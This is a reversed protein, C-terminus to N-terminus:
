KKKFTYQINVNVNVNQNTSNSNFISVQDVLEFGNAEFYNIMAVASNFQKPAFKGNRYEKVIQRGANLGRPPLQGYDVFAIVKQSFAAGQLTVNVYNVGEVANLSVDGVVIDGNSQANLGCTFALLACLILKKM